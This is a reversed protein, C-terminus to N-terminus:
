LGIRCKKVLLPEISFSRCSEVGICKNELYLSTSKLLDVDSWAYIILNSCLVLMLRRGQGCEGEEVIFVLGKCILGFGVVKRCVKGALVVEELLSLGVM